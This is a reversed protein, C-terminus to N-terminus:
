SDQPADKRQPEGLFRAKFLRVILWLVLGVVLLIAWAEWPISHIGEGMYVMLLTVPLIGLGTTWTFTWWSINLLGAAYNMLNFSIAPILRGLFLAADGHREVWAEVELLRKEKMRRRVYARGVGRALGFALYAGLMAGVWTIVTGWWLGVVMGNAIAIFEAPFPVFSHLVMLLVSAVAGWPGLSRIFHDIQALSFRPWWQCWPAGGTLGCLIMAGFVFAAMVLFGGAIFRAYRTRERRSEAM